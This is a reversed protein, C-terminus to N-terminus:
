VNMSRIQARLKENEEVIADFGECFEILEDGFIEIDHTSPFVRDWPFPGDSKAKHHRKIFNTIASM